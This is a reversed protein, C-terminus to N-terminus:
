SAPWPSCIVNSGTSRERPMRETAHHTAHSHSSLFTCGHGKSHAVGFGTRTDTAPNAPM